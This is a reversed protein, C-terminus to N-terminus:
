NFLRFLKDGDLRAHYIQPMVSSTSYEYVISKGDPTVDIREINKAMDGELSTRKWTMTGNFSTAM